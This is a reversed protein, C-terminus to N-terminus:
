LLEIKSDGRDVNERNQRSPVESDTQHRHQSAMREGIERESSSPLSTVGHKNAKPYTETRHRALQSQIFRM